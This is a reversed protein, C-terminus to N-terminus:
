TQSHNGIRMDKLGKVVRELVGAEERMTMKRAILHEKLYPMVLGLITLVVSPPMDTLKTTSVQGELDVIRVESTPTISIKSAEMGIKRMTEKSFNISLNMNKMLETLTDALDKVYYEELSKLESIATNEEQIEKLWKVIDYGGDDNKYRSRVDFEM